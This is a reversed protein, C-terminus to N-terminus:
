VASLCTRLAAELRYRSAVEFRSRYVHRLMPQMLNKSTLDKTVTALRFIDAPSKEFHLISAIRLSVSPFDFRAIRHYTANHSM